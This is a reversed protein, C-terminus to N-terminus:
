PRDLVQKPKVDARASAGKTVVLPGIDARSDVRDRLMLAERRGSAKDYVGVQIQYQGPPLGAPIALEHWTVVMQGGKWYALPYGIVQDALALTRDGVGMLHAFVSPIVAPAKAPLRWYVALFAREGSRASEPLSYGVLELGGEARALAPASATATYQAARAAGAAVRHASFALGPLPPLATAQTQIGASEFLSELRNDERAILYLAQDKTPLPTVLNEDFWQLDLGSEDFRRREAATLSSWLFFVLTSRDDYFRSTIFVEARDNRWLDSAALYRGAAALDAEFARHAEPLNAWDQFYSQFTTAAPLLAIALVAPLACWSYWAIPRSPEPLAPGLYSAPQM